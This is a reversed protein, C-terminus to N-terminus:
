ALMPDIGTTDTSGDPSNTMEEIPTTTHGQTPGNAYPPRSSASPRETPRQRTPNPESTSSASPEAHTASPSPRTALETTPQGAGNVPGTSISTCHRNPGPGSTAGCLKLCDRNTPRAGLTPGGSGLIDRSTQRLAPVGTRLRQCARDHGCGLPGRGRARAPHPM